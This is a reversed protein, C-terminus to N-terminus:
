RWSRRVIGVLGLGCALLWITAPEPIPIASPSPVPEAIRYQGHDIVGSYYDTPTNPSCFVLGCSSEGTAIGDFYWTASGSPPNSAEADWPEDGDVSTFWGINNVGNQLAVSFDSISASGTCNVEYVYTLQGATPTYGSFPFDGPGYVAWVVSGSLVPDYTDPFVTTGRWTTGDSTYPPGTDLLGAPAPLAWLGVIAFLIVCLTAKKFGIM